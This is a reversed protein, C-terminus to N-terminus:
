KKTAKKSPHKKTQYRLDAEEINRIKERWAFGMSARHRDIERYITNRRNEAAVIQCDIHAVFDSEKLFARIRITDAILDFNYPLESAADSELGLEDCLKKLEELDQESLTPKPLKEVDIKEGINALRGNIPASLVWRMAAPIEAEILCIRMRRWRRVEWIWYALDHLWSEEIINTPELDAYLRELLLDFEERSEYKLIPPPGFIAERLAKSNSLAGLRKSTM